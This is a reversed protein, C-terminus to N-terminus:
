CCRHTFEGNSVRASKGRFFSKILDNKKEIENNPVCHNNNNNPYYIM